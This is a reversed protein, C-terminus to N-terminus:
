RFTLLIQRKKYNIYSQNATFDKFVGIMTVPASDTKKARQFQSFFLIRIFLIIDITGNKFLM